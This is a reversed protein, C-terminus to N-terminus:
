TLGLQAELPAIAVRAREVDAEEGRRAVVRWAELAWWPAPIGGAQDVVRQAM